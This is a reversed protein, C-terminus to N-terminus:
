SKKFLDRQLNGIVEVLRRWTRELFGKVRDLDENSPLKLEPERRLGAPPESRPGAPEDPGRAVPDKRLSAVQDQLRAIEAEFAVRDEPLVLCQWGSAGRSCLSVQGTRSDFRMFGDEVPHFHYRGDKDDPDAAGGQAAAPSVSLVTGLVVAAAAM